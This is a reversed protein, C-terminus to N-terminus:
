PRNSRPPEALSQTLRKAYRNMVSDFYFKLM